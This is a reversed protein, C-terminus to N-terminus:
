MIQCKTQKQCQEFYGPEDEPDEHGVAAGIKRKLGRVTIKQEGKGHWWRLRQILGLGHDAEDVTISWKGSSVEVKATGRPFHFEPLFIETPADESPLQDTVLTFNFIGSRLDFGYSQVSGVTHIPSPRVYAEAARYGSTALDGGTLASPTRSISPAAVAGKLNEPSIPTQSDTNSRSQSFSPNSSDESIRADSSLNLKPNYPPNTPLAKDDLSFISLDEGNWLDGWEHNNQQTTM